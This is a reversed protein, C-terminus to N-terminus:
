GFNVAFRHWGMCGTVRWSLWRKHHSRDSQHLHRVRDRNGDHHRCVMCVKKRITFHSYCHQSEGVAYPLTIHRRMRVLQLDNEIKVGDKTSGHSAELGDDKKAKTFSRQLLPEKESQKSTMSLQQVIFTNILHLIYRHVTCTVKENLKSGQLCLLHVSCIYM